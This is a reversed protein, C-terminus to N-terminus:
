RVPSDTLVFLMVSVLVAAMTGVLFLVTAVDNRWRRALLMGVVPPLVAVAGASLANARANRVQEATPLEPVPPWDSYTVAGLVASAAVVLWLFGLLLLWADRRSARAPDAATL